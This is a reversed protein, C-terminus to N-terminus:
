AKKGVVQWVFDARVHLAERCRRRKDRKEKRGLWLETVFVILSMTLIVGLLIFAVVVHSIKLPRNGHIKPRTWFNNTSGYHAEFEALMKLNIGTALWWAVAENFGNQLIFM